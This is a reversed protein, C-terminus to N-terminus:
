RYNMKMEPIELLGYEKRYPRELIFGTKGSSGESRLARNSINKLLGVFQRQRSELPLHTDPCALLIHAGEGALRTFEATIAKLLDYAENFPVDQDYFTSLLGSVIAVNTHFRRFADALRDVVLAQMQHCTFARSIYLRSLLEEPVLGAMRATKSILYPDFSNAGDLFVVPKERAVGAFAMHLALYTVSYAPKGYALVINAPPEPTRLDACIKEIAGDVPCILNKKM